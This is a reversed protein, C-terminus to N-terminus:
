RNIRRIDDGFFHLINYNGLIRSFVRQSYISEIEGIALNTSIIIKKGNILRTNMVDFFVSCTYSTIFETGLDDIILLDCDYISNYADINQERPIKGFKYDELFQFLKYATHYVVSAGELILENSIAHSLYTKGLGSAGYFLLNKTATNNFNEVFYICENYISSMNEYPSVGYRHDVERSYFDMNFNSFTNNKFEVGLGSTKEVQEKTIKKLKEIYCTCPNDSVFGTDKCLPCEYEVLDDRILNNNDILLYKRELLEAKKAQMLEVAKEPTIGETIVKKAYQVALCSIKEDIVSLEPVREGNYKKITNIKEDRAINILRYENMINQHIRSNKDIIM